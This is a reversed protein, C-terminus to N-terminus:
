IDYEILAEEASIWPDYIDVKCNFDQLEKVIDVVRTNRLDPCNEKFALGMVLIRAGDVQLRRKTMAKVLQGM